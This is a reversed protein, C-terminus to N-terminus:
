CLVKSPSPCRFATSQRYYLVKHSVVGESTFYFLKQSFPLKESFYYIVEPWFGELKIGILLVSNQVVLTNNREDNEQLKLSWNLGFKWLSTIKRM